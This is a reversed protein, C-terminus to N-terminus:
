WRCCFRGLLKKLEQRFRRGSITYLLFNVGHNSYMINDVFAHTLFSRAREADSAPSWFYKEYLLVIVVPSTLMLFTFSVLLLMVTINTNTNAAKKAAGGDGGGGKTEENNHTDGSSTFQKSFKQSRNLERIILVNFVLLSVFSIFSYISADIWTYIKRIFYAVNPDPYYCMMPDEPNGSPGIRRTFLIQINLAFSFIGIATIARLASKPTCWSQAKLPFRVVIFRDVTMALLLLVDFHICFYFLFEHIGCAWGSRLFFETQGVYDRIIGSFGIILIICDLVAIAAMYVCTSTNRLSTFVLTLFCLLNGLVGVVTLTPIYIRDILLGAKVEAMEEFPTGTNMDVPPHITTVIIDSSMDDIHVGFTNNSGAM